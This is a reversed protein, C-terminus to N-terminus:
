SPPTNPRSPKSTANRRMGPRASRSWTPVPGSSRRNCGIPKKNRPPGSHMRRACDKAHVPRPMQPQLAAIAAIREAEIECGRPTLLSIAHREAAKQAAIPDEPPATAPSRPDGTEGAQRARFRQYDGLAEAHTTM